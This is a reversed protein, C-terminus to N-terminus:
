MPHRRSAPLVHQFLAASWVMRLRQDGDKAQPFAVIERGQHYGSSSVVLHEVELVRVVARHPGLTEEELGIDLGFLESPLHPVLSLVGVVVRGARRCRPRHLQDVSTQPMCRLLGQLEEVDGKPVVLHAELSPTSEKIRTCICESRSITLATEVRVREAPWM